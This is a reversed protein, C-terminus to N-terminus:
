ELMVTNPNRTPAATSPFCSTGLTAWPIGLGLRVLWHNGLLKGVLAVGLLWSSAIAAPRPVMVLVANRMQAFRVSLQGSVAIATYYQSVWCLVAARQLDRVYDPMSSLVFDCLVQAQLTQTGPSFKGSGGEWFSRAAVACIVAPRLVIASPLLWERRVSCNGRM